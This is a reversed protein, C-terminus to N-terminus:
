LTIKKFTVADRETVVMDLPVDWAHDIFTAEQLSFALGVLKPKRWGHQTTSFTRDYYGKGMGLRNGHRDFAVLPTIVMDLKWPAIADRPNHKPEPIGYQNKILATYGPIYREFTLSDSDSVVRPLYCKKGLRLALHCLPLPDIEGDSAIYLAIKTAKRFNFIRSVNRTVASSAARQVAQDLTRRQHRITRRLTQNSPIITGWIAATRIPGQVWRNL